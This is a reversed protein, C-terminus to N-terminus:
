NFGRVHILSRTFSLVTPYIFRLGDTWRGLSPGISSNQPRDFWRSLPMGKNSFIKITFTGLVVTEGFIPSLRWFKLDWMLSWRAVLKFFNM